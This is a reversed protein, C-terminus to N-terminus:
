VTKFNEFGSRKFMKELDYNSYFVITPRGHPCNFPNKCKKLDKLLEKLEEESVYQNAKIALKCALMTAASENFKEINFKDEYSVILDIIRKISEEAEEKPIWTPHSKIIVSNIGFEEVDFGMNKLVEFNERLIIYENTALEITIPFLLREIELEPKGMREKFLEYNVREKAAHQDILYMGKEDQCIIYTSHVVGVFSLTPFEKKEESDYVVEEENVTFNDDLDFKLTQEEYIPTREIKEENPEEKILSTNMVIPSDVELHPILIKEKIKEKIMKTILDLLENMKSFKIDMKTPHVNVDM